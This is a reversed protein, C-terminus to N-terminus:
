DRDSRVGVILWADGSRRLEVTERTVESTEPGRPTGIRTVRATASASDQSVKVALDDRVIMRAGAEPAAGALLAARDLRVGDATAAAFDEATIRALVGVDQQARARDFFGLVSRIETEPTPVGPVVTGAVLLPHAVAAAPALLALVLPSALRIM